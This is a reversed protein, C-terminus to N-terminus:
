GSAAGDQAQAGRRKLMHRTFEDLPTGKKPKSVPAPAAEIEDLVSIMLRGLAAVDRAAEAHDISHAVVDRLRVLTNRRNGRKAATSLVPRKESM